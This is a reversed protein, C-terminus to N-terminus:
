PGRGLGDSTACPTPPPLGARSVWRWTGDDLMSYFTLGLGLTGMIVGKRLDSSAARKRLLQAQELLPAAAASQRLATASTGLELSQMVEGPPVVGMEALKLMTENLMRAKRMRYSVLLAVILVPSLFVIAVIAVVMGALAPAKHVFQGFNEFDQDQGIVRVRKGDKEIVLGRHDGSPDNGDTAAADTANAADAADSTDIEIRARVGKDAKAAAAKGPPTAKDASPAASAAPPPAVQAIAEATRQPLSVALALLIATPLVIRRTLLSPSPTRGIM